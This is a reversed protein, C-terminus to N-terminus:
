CIREERVPFCVSVVIETVAERYACFVMCKTTVPEGSADSKAQAESLHTTLQLIAADSVIVPVVPLLCSVLDVLIDCKPHKVGANTLDDVKRMVKQINPDNWLKGKKGSGIMDNLVSRFMGISFEMQLPKTLVECM